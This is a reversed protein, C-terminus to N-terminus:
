LNQDEPPVINNVKEFNFPNETGYYKKFYAKSAEDSPNKWAEIRGLEMEMKELASMNDYDVQDDSTDENTPVGMDVAKASGAPIEEVANIGHRKMKLNVVYGSHSLDHTAEIVYYNGSFKDSVNKFTLVIGSILRPDGLVRATAPNKKTLGEDQTNKGKGGEAEDLDGGGMEQIYDEYPVWQEIIFPAATNDRNELVEGNYDTRWDNRDNIKKYKPIGERKVEPTHALLEGFPENILRNYQLYQYQESIEGSAMRSMFEDRYEEDTLTPDIVRPMKALDYDSPNTPNEMIKGLHPEKNDETTHLTEEYEKEERSWKGQKVQNASSKRTLAKTEPSFSLLHGDENKYTYTRFPTQAYNQKKITLTDDRTEIIWPGNPLSAVADKLVQDDSKGATPARYILSLDKLVQVPFNDVATPAEADRYFEGSVAETTNGYRTRRPYELWKKTYMAEAAEIAVELEMGNADAMDKAINYVKDSVAKREKPLKTMIGRDVAKIKLSVGRPSYDAKIEMIYVKRPKLTMNGTYGWQVKIAKGEQLDPHDPLSPDGSTVTFECYDLEEQSHKYTFQGEVHLILEDALNYVVVQIAEHGTISPM